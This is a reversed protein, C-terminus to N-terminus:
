PTEEPKEMLREVDALDKLRGTARKNTLLDDRGLFPVSMGGTEVFVRRKHADPFAVGTIGTLVDIRRPERGIQFVVDPDILDGQNLGSLPAGFTQLAAWVRPANDHTPSVWIDLDGTARPVGHVALAHAGVVLFDAGEASLARLIDLFDENM